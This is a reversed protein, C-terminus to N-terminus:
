ERGVKIKCAIPASDQCIPLYLFDSIPLEKEEELALNYLSFGWCQSKRVWSINARKARETLINALADEFKDLWDCMGFLIERLTVEIDISNGPEGILFCQPKFKDELPGKAGQLSVYDPYHILRQRLGKKYAFGKQWWSSDLNALEAFFPRLKLLNPNKSSDIQLKHFSNIKKYKECEVDDFLIYLSMKAIDDLFINLYTFVSDVAIAAKIEYNKPIADGKELSDLYNGYKQLVQQLADLSYILRRILYTCRMFSRGFLDKLPSGCIEKRTTNLSTHLLADFISLIGLRCAPLNAGERYLGHRKPM